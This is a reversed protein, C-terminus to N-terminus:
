IVVRSENAETSISLVVVFFWLFTRDRQSGNFPTVGDIEYM